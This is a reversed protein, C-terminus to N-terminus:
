PAKALTLMVQKLPTPAAPTAPNNGVEPTGRGSSTPTAELSLVDMRSPLPSNSRSRKEGSSESKRVSDLKKNEVVASSPEAEMQVVPLSTDFGVAINRSVAKVVTAPTKPSAVNSTSPTPMAKSVKPKKPPSDHIDHQPSTLLENLAKEADFNCRVITTKIVHESVTEGMIDMVHEGM